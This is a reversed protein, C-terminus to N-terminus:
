NREPKNIALINEDEFVIELDITKGLLFEDSIYIEINDGLNLSVNEKVRQGNIKIDKQRLSKFFMNQKLNPFSFSVFSNLSKGDFKEDVIIKRM